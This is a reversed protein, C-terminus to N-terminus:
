RRRAQRLLQPRRCCLLRHQWPVPQAYVMLAAPTFWISISCEPETDGCFSTRWIQLWQWGYPTCNHLPEAKSTHNPSFTAVPPTSQFLMCERQGSLPARSNNHAYASSGHPLLVKAGICLWPSTPQLCNTKGMWQLPAQICRRPVRICAPTDSFATLNAWGIVTVLQCLSM